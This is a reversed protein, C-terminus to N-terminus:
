QVRLPQAASLDFTVNKGVILNTNSGDASRALWWALAVLQTAATTDVSTIAEKIDALSAFELEAGDAFRVRYTQRPASDKIISTISVTAM